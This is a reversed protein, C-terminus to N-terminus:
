PFVKKRRAGARRRPARKRPKSGGRTLGAGGRRLAGGRTLAGGRKRRGYGAKSATAIAKRAQPGQHLGLAKWVNSGKSVVKHKRAFRAIDRIFKGFSGGAQVGRPRTTRAVKYSKTTKRRGTKRRPM